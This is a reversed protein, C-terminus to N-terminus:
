ATLSLCMSHPDRIHLPFVSSQNAVVVSQHRVVAIVAFHRRGALGLVVADIGENAEALTRGTRRTM